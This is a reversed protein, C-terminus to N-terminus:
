PIHVVSRCSTLEVVFPKTFLETPKRLHRQDIVVEMEDRFRASPVRSFNGQQNLHRIISKSVGHRDIRAM